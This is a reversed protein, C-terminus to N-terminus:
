PKAVGVIDHEHPNQWGFYYGDPTYSRDAGDNTVIFIPAETFTFDVSVNVVDLIQGSRLIIKDGKGIFLNFYGLQVTQM